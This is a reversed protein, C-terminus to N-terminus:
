AAISVVKSKRGSTAVEAALQEEARLWDELPNGPASGRELYLYYARQAVEEHTPKRGSKRQKKVAPSSSSTKKARSM